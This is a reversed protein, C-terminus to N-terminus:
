VRNRVFNILNWSYLNFRTFLGIDDPTPNLVDISNSGVLRKGIGIHHTEGLVVCATEVNTTRSQITEAMGDERQVNVICLMIYFLVFGIVALWAVSRIAVIPLPVVRSFAVPLIIIPIWNVLGWLVPREYVPRATHVSDIECIKADYKSAILQMIATDRGKTGGTLVSAIGGLLTLVFFVQFAAVLAILPARPLLYAITIAQEILSAEGGEGFVVEPDELQNAIESVRGEVEDIHTGSSIYLRM